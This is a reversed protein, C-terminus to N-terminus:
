EQKKLFLRINLIAGYWFSTKLYYSKFIKKRNKMNINLHSKFSSYSFIILKFNTNYTLASNYLSSYDPSSYLPLVLHFASSVLLNFQTPFRLQPSYVLDKGIKRSGLICSQALEVLYSSLLLLSSSSYALKKGNLTKNCINWVVSSQCIEVHSSFIYYWKGKLTSSSSYFESDHSLNVTINLLCLCM